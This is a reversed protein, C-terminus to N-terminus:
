KAQLMKMTIKNELKIQTKAGEEFKQADSSKAGPLAMIGLPQGKKTIGKNYEDFSNLRQALKEMVQKHKKIKSKKDSELM